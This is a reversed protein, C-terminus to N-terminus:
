NMWASVAPCLHDGVFWLLIAFSLASVIVFEQKKVRVEDRYARAKHVDESRQMWRDSVRRMVEIRAIQFVFVFSCLIASAFSLLAVRYVWIAAIVSTESALTVLLAGVVVTLVSTFTLALRGVGLSQSVIEHESRNAIFLASASPIIFLASAYGGGLDPSDKMPGSIILIALLAAMLLSAITAPILFLGRKPNLTLSLEYLYHNPLNRDFVIAREHHSKIECILASSRVRVLGSSGARAIVEFGDIMMGEPTIVRVHTPFQNRGTGLVYARLSHRTGLIGIRQLVRGLKRHVLSLKFPEGPLSDDGPNQTEAQGDDVVLDALGYSRIANSEKLDAGEANSDDSDKINLMSKESTSQIDVKIISKNQGDRLPLEICLFFSDALNDLLDRLVKVYEENLGHEQADRVITVKKHPLTETKLSFSPDLYDLVRQYIESVWNETANASLACVGTAILAGVRQNEARRCVHLKLGTEDRVTIDFHPGKSALWLPVVLHNCAPQDEEEASEPTLISTVVATDIDFTISEQLLSRDIQRLTQVRRCMYYKSSESRSGLWLDRYRGAVESEFAPTRNLIDM